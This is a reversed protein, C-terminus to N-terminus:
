TTKFVKYGGAPYNFIFVKSFSKEPLFFTDNDFSIAPLLRWTEVL